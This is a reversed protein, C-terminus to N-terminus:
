DNRTAKIVAATTGQLIELYDAYQGKSLIKKMQKKEWSEIAQLENSAARLLDFEPKAKPDIKYKAFVKVIRTESKDLIAKVAALQKGVFKMRVLLQPDYITGETGAASATVVPQVAVLGVFMLGVFLKKLMSM